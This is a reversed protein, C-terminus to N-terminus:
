VKIEMWFTKIEEITKLVLEWLDNTVKQSNFYQVCFINTHDNPTQMSVSKEEVIQQNLCTLIGSEQCSLAKTSRLKLELSKLSTYALNLNTTSTMLKELRIYHLIMTDKLRESKELQTV